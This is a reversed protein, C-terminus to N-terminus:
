WGFVTFPFFALVFARIVHILGSCATVVFFSIGWTMMDRWYAGGCHSGTPGEAFGETLMNDTNVFSIGNGVGMIAYETGSPHRWGWCDSGESPDLTLQEELCLAYLSTDQAQLVSAALCFLASLTLIDLALYRKLITKM